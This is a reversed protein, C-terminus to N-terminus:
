FGYTENDRRIKGPALRQKIVQPFGRPRLDATRGPMKRGAAKGGAAGKLFQHVAEAAARYLAFVAAQM